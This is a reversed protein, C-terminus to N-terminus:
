KKAEIKTKGFMLPILVKPITISGDENQYNEIIAVMTRSTALATNNLSHPTYQKAGDFVKINARRTQAQTLNSCSGVEFYDQKRPSYAEVDESKYKLDSLDGSCCELTRVPLELAKFIELTNQLIEKYLKDSDEPECIIVQEVKNFQHTRFLGKEDIGHSGIEQRFAMSYGFLKIPLDKKELTKDKFMAIMPHEATAILYQDKGDIKYAHEEFDSFPMVGHVANENLMLPPEIYTYKKKYMFEIAFRILAQNLLGLDGKLYYFGNGTVKSSTEFDAIDLNECIEIHSKVEFKKKTPKGFIERVVNEKDNKGLPVSDAIINPIEFQLLEIKEKINTLEKDKDILQKPIEKAKKFLETADEGKKKAESIGKSVKNRQARLNEVDKLLKLYKEDLELLEDLIKEKEHRFKKKINNRVLEANERIFKLSLM